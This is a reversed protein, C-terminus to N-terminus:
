RQHLEATGITRLLDFKAADETGPEATCTLIRLDTGVATFIDCDVTLDGVQPHVFNKRESRHEAM